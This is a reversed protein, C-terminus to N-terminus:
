LDISQWLSVLQRKRHFSHQIFALKGIQGKPLKNVAVFDNPEHETAVHSRGGFIMRGARFLRQRKVGSVWLPKTIGLRTLNNGVGVGDEISYVGRWRIAVTPMIKQRYPNHKM